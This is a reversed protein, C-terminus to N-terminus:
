KQQVLTHFFYVDVTELEYAGSENFSSTKM